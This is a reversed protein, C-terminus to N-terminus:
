DKQDKENGEQRQEQLTIAEERKYVKYRVDDKSSTSRPVPFAM